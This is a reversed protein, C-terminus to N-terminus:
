RGWLRRKPRSRHCAPVIGSRGVSDVSSFSCGSHVTYKGGQKILHFLMVVRHQAGDDGIVARRRPAAAGLHQHTFLSQQAAGDAAARHLAIGDGLGFRQQLFAAAGDMLVPEMAVLHLIDAHDAAAVHRHVHLEDGGIVRLPPLQCAVHQVADGQPLRSPQHQCQVAARRGQRIRGIGVTRVKGVGQGDALPGDQEAGTVARKGQTGQQDRHAEPHCHHVVPRLQHGLLAKGGGVRHHAAIHLVNRIGDGNVALVIHHDHGVAVAVIKHHLLLHQPSLVGVDADDAGTGLGGADVRQQPLGADSLLGDGGNM